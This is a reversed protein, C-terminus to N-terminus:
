RAPPPSSPPAAATSAPGAAVGARALATPSPQYEITVSTMVPSFLWSLPPVGYWYNNSETEVLRLRSGDAADIRRTAADIMADVSTKGFVPVLVAFNLGVFTSTQVFVPEGDAGVHGNWHTATRHFSCAGFMLALAVWGLGKRRSM